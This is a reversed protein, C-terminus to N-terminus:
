ALRVAPLIMRVVAGGERANELQLMGRHADVIGRSIFLGLGSGGIQSRTSVFPEGLRAMLEPPFGPGNDRIEIAADGSPTTSTRIEIHPPRQSVDTVAAAANALAHVIAQVLRAEDGMVQPVTDLRLRPSPAGKMQPVAEAVARAIVDAPDLLRLEETSPQAYVRLGDVIRHIRQAADFAHVFAEDAGPVGKEKVADQLEELSLTLYQLPNNIEHGVGAAIRGLAAFREQVALAERAEDRQHTTTRIEDTLSASLEQLRQADDLFKRVLQAIVPVVLGLYGLEAVYIFQLQGMAVLMEIIGCVVFLAFGFVIPLAGRVGLKAQRVQEALSVILFVITVAASVSAAPTLAPITFEVAPWQVVVHVIRSSDVTLGLVGLLVAFLIHAPGLIQVWRPVSRWRGEHDAFSYWLWVVVHMAAVVLNEAAVSTNAIKSSHGIIAILDFLSYLGATLALMAVIRVRRWGAARSIVMAALFAALQLGFTVSSMLLLVIM